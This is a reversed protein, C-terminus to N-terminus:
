RARIVKGDQIVIQREEILEQWSDGENVEILAEVEDTELESGNPLVELQKLQHETWRIQDRRRSIEKSFRREVETKSVGSKRELKKQEFSLQRCEKDLQTCREYFREKLQARSDETLVQKVPIKRIIQM